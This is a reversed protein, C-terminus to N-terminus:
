DLLENDEDLKELLKKSDQKDIRFELNTRVVVDGNIYTIKLENLDLTSNVGFQKKIFKVVLKAALKRLWRSGLNLKMEDM